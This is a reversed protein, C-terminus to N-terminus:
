AIIVQMNASETSWKCFAGEYEVRYTQEALSGDGAKNSWSYVPRDASLPLPILKALRILRRHIDPCGGARSLFHLFSPQEKAPSHNRGSVAAKRRFSGAAFQWGSVLEQIHKPLTYVSSRRLSRRTNPTSASATTVYPSSGSQESKQEASVHVESPKGPKRYKVANGILNQFLRVMQGRDVPLTPLPDHTIRSDSEQIAQDLHTIAAEFAEDLAISSPREEETTLRAYSLLDQVLSSM